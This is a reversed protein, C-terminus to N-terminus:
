TATHRRPQGARVPGPKGAARARAVLYVKGLALLNTTDSDREIM